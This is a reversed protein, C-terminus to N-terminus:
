TNERLIKPYNECKQCFEQVSICESTKGVNFAAQQALVAKRGECYISCSPTM